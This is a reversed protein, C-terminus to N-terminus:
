PQPRAGGSPERSDVAKGVRAALLREVLRAPEVEVQVLARQEPRMFGHALARDFQAVLPAYFGAVDLLGCPKQHLGLQAWSIVECLEDYTGFGGPLAIFAASLEVMRAKREHMSEVVYLETLGLHAVEKDVLARPMVGIATGGLALVEDALVGMLGVRGGGYVLALRREVLERATELAAQAFAPSDGSSSGCFM